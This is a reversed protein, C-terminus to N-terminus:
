PKYRRGQIIAKFDEFASCWYARCGIGNLQDIKRQQRYTPEEGPQKFEVWIYDAPIFRAIEPMISPLIVLRDPWDRM